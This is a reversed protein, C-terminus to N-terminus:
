SSSQGFSVGACSASNSGTSPTVHSSRAFFRILAREGKWPYRKVIFAMVFRMFVKIYGFATYDDAFPPLM